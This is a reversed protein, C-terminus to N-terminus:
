SNFFFFRFFPSNQAFVSYDKKTFIRNFRKLKTCLFIFFLLSFQLISLYFLILNYYLYM